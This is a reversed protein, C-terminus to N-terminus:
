LLNEEIIFGGFNGHKIYRDSVTERNGICYNKGINTFVLNDLNNIDIVNKDIDNEDEDPTELYLIASNLTTYSDISYFIPLNDKGGVIYFITYTSAM